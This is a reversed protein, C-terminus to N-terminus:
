AGQIQARACTFTVVILAHVMFRILSNSSVANDPLLVLGALASNAAVKLSDSAPQSRPGLLRIDHVKLMAM